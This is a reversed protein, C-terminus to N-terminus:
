VYGTYGIETKGHEYLKREEKAGLFLHSLMLYYDMLLLQVMLTEPICLFVSWITM